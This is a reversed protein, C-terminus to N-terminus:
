LWCAAPDPRDYVGSRAEQMGNLETRGFFAWIANHLVPGSWTKALHMQDLLLGASLFWWSYIQCFAIPGSDTEWKWVRNCKEWLHGPNYQAYGDQNKASQTLHQGFPGPGSAFTRTASDPRSRALAELGIGIPHLDSGAHKVPFWLSALVLCAFLPCVAVQSTCVYSPMFQITISWHGTWRAERCPESCAFSAPQLLLICTIEGQAGNMHLESVVLTYVCTEGEAQKVISWVCSCCFLCFFNDIFVLFGTDTM